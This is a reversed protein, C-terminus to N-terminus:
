LVFGTLIEIMKDERFTGYKIFMEYSVREAILKLTDERENV